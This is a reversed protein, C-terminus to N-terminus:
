LVLMGLLAQRSQAVFLQLILHFLQSLLHLLQSSLHSFQSILHLATSHSSVRFVKHLLQDVSIDISM